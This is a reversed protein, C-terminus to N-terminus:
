AELEALRKKLRAIERERSAQRDGGNGLERVRGALKEVAEKQASEGIRAYIETVRESKHGLVDSIDSMPVGAQRMFTGATRRLDHVTVDEIGAKERVRNWAAGIKTRPAGSKRPSPFVFPNGHFRPIDALIAKASESLRLPNPKPPPRTPARTRRDLQLEQAVLGVEVASQM